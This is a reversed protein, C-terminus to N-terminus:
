APSVKASSGLLGVILAFALGTVLGIIGGLLLAVPEFGWCMVISYALAALTGILAAGSCVTRWSLRGGRVLWHFYPAGLLLMAGYSMPLIHVVVKTVTNALASVVSGTRTFHRIVVLLVFVTWPALPAFIAGLAIPRLIRNKTPQDDIM